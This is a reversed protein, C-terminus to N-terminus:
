PRECVVLLNKGGVRGFLTDLARSVPFVFRDYASLAGVNIRGSSSGAWKYALSAPVGLCDVYERREVVFGADTVKQILDKMHYRRVHGVAADMSSHLWQLAPVYVLLRGGPRLAKFIESLIARDDQIHEMVNVTYVYDVGGEPLASISDVVEYGAAKLMDTQVADPEVCVLKHAWPRVTQALAGVGAGFDVITRAGEAHRRILQGLFGNYNRAHQMVLLNEHGTYTFKYETEM